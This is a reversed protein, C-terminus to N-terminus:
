LLVRRRTRALAARENNRAFGACALILSFLSLLAAPAAQDSVQMYPPAAPDARNCCRTQCESAPEPSTGLQQRESPARSENTFGHRCGECAKNTYCEGSHVCCMEHETMWPFRAHGTGVWKGFSGGPCEALTAHAVGEDRLRMQHREDRLRVVQHPLFCLEGWPTQATTGTPTRKPILWQTEALSLGALLLMSGATDRNVSSPTRRWPRTAANTPARTEMFVM